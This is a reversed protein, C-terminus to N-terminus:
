AAGGKRELRRLRDIEAAILAGAIQLQRIRAHSHKKCLGWCGREDPDVVKADTGFVCLHAAVVPIIQFEHDDDHEADWGCEVIQRHREYAIM